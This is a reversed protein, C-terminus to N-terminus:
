SNVYDIIGKKKKNKKNRKRAPKTIAKAVVTRTRTQTEKKKKVIEENSSESNSESFENGFEISDDSYFDYYRRKKLKGQVTTPLNRLKEEDFEIDSM